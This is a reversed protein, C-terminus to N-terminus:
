PNNDQPNNGQGHFTEGIYSLTSDVASTVFWGGLYGIVFGVSFYGTYIAAGRTYAYLATQLFLRDIPTGRVIRLVDLVTDATLAGAAASLLFFM